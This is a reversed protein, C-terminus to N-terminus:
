SCEIVVTMTEDAALVVPVRFELALTGDRVTTDARVDRRPVAVRATAAKVGSPLGLELRAVECRGWAVALANTQTNGARKQTFRGWGGATSFFSRHDEPRLRPNFGLTKAPGDYRYGQAALLLTWSSMARVYYDGCEIENWPNRKTGDYRERAGKVIALGERLMGEYIMHAAVQYEVGTWAEDRYYIPDEGPPRGGKPWSCILLAKDDGDAFQLFRQTGQFGKQSTLWSYRYISALASRVQEVPLIDGLSLVRAWWQGVVQDSFCGTGYGHRLNDAIQIYYEGNYLKAAAFARGKEYLDRYRKASDADNIRRAMEEAARLAALYLSGVFTNLGHIVQDYTNFQPKDMVGDADSDWNSVAFDMAKRIQPWHDNLFARGDSQLHERYAKLVAGCQGDAVPGSAAKRERPVGVRHHLAGTPEQHYDLETVRMNRELSPWLKSLTHEYNWVHNCNMPCCGGGPGCGEFGYFTGDKIWFCTPSRLISVNAGICDVLYHPLSSEYLCDRFRETHDRLRAMDTLVYSAVSAADRFRNDYANGVFVGGRGGPRWSEQPYYQNPFHWTLVFDTSASAGAAISAAVAIAANITKGGESPGEQDSTTTLAGDELFDAHLARRDQWGAVVTADASPTALCMTGFSPASSPRGAAPKFGIGALGTVLSLCADRRRVPDSADAGVPDAPMVFVKGKGRDAGILAPEGDEFKLLTQATDDTRVARLGPPASLAIRDATVAALEPRSRDIPVVRVPKAAQPDAPGFAVPLIESWARAEAETVAETPLNSFRIDDVNIHGWGGSEADVIELSAEQGLLDQVDWQQRELAEDNRGTATRVIRGGVRLNLCCKGPHNGGGILFTIFRRRITFPPSTLTGQPGDNPLFTNVLGGGLHGGVPNQGPRTGRAPGDGFGGGQVKWSGYTGAEFDAFTEEDRRAAGSVTARVERLLPNDAGTVILTAGARVAEAIASLSGGGMRTLDGRGLWYVTGPEPRTAAPGVSRTTLNRVPWDDDAILMGHDLWLTMPRSLAAPVGPEAHMRVAVGKPGRVIRNVNLGYTAHSVGVSAGAGQHGVANQVSALVSVRVPKGTPNAATVRFIACPIGSDADNLPVLPNFAELRIRVPLDPDEFEVFAFPYQGVFRTAAISPFPSIPAMQLVRVIPPGGEEEVRVAFFSDDVQSSRNINNFIQWATLRGTGHLWVTGTGIGGLPFAVNRIADGSYAPPEGREFLSDFWAKPPPTQCSPPFDGPAAVALESRAALGAAAVAGAGIQLFGRRSIDHCACDRGCQRM